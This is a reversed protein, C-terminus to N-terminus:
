EKDKKTEVVHRMHLTTDESNRLRQVPIRSPQSPVAAVMHRYKRAESESLDVQDNAVYKRVAGNEMRSIRGGPLLVYKM